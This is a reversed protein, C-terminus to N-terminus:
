FRRSPIEHPASSRMLPSLQNPQIATPAASPTANPNSYKKYPDEFVPGRLREHQLNFAQMPDATKTSVNPVVPGPLKAVAPAVVADPSTVPDLSGPLRGSLGVNAHGPNLLEEFSARRELQARTPKEIEKPRTNFADFYLGNKTSEDRLGVPSRENKKELSGPRNAWLADDPRRVTDHAQWNFDGEPTLSGPAGPRKLNLPDRPKGTEPSLKKGLGPQVKDKNAEEQDRNPDSFIKPDQLLWHRDDKKEKEERPNARMVPSRPMVAPQEVEPGSFDITRTRAEPLNELPKPPVVIALLPKSFQISEGAARDAVLALALVGVAGRLLQSINQALSM